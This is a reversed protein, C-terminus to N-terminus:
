NATPTRTRRQAETIPSSTAVAIPPTVDVPEHIGYRRYLRALPRPTWWNWRGLLRMTAPVLLARVLTADVVIAVIMGVGIMKTLTIQGTAFGAVVTALLLAAATIIRGTAQLGSAVSATNDGTRDWAERVRSLLFIEYDTALGFLVALILIPITPDLHGLPTFGLWDSLHGNQFVWVLAGFSAGISLLNMAVAKLPLLVSGFALFLLVITATAMIVAMWPLRAGISDLRDIDAATRGGVLVEVGAPTSIDRIAEVVDHAPDGTRSGAYSVTILASDGRAATVEADTVSPLADIRDTFGRVQGPTAGDVYAQIPATSGGPFDTAITESVTRAPTGEPLVREDVGSFKAGLFPLAAVVLLALVGALYPLPRRMVSRALRAWAGHAAAAERRRPWPLPVRVADIRHGLIALLAPLVTLSGLMAVLVAAMGGMGMSRLFVQPFILLSALALTITLGSVLVTRGATAITRGVAEHPQYGQRLEDRFRSVMLLAYDIAMGLGLLLITNVAFVSVDTVSTIVRTTTLAGLVALIGTLLPMGAAAVSGFILLLLVLVIPAAISEGRALDKEVQGDAAAQLAVVGGVRTTIGRADLDSKIADYADLKADDGVADLTITAYTAHRDRSVLGPTGTDYYSIVRDVVPDHRLDDLVATIPGRMAPDDVAAAESSYLVVVDADQRGLDVAIREVARASESDPDDFGGSSLRDFVGSGWVVGLVVVAVTVAVIPWRLTVVIRSWWGLM